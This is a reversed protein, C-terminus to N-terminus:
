PVYQTRKCWLRRGFWLWRHTSRRCGACWLRCRGGAAPQRWLWRAKCRWLRRLFFFSPPLSHFCVLFCIMQAVNMVYGYRWFRSRECNHRRWLRRDVHRAHRWVQQWLRWSRGSCRCWLRWTGCCWVPEHRWVRRWFGTRGIDGPGPLSFLIFLNLISCYYMRWEICVGPRGFGGVGPAAAGFAPAATTAGFTGLPAATQAGFGPTAGFGTSFMVTLNEM